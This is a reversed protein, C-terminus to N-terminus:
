YGKNLKKVKRLWIDPRQMTYVGACVYVCVYMCRLYMVNFIHVTMPKEERIMTLYYPSYAPNSSKFAPTHFNTYISILIDFM